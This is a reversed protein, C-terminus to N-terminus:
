WPNPNGCGEPRHEPCLEFILKLISDYLGFKDFSTGEFSVEKMNSNIINQIKTSLEWKSLKKIKDSKQINEHKTNM